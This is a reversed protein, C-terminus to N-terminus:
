KLSALNKKVQKAQSGNPSLELYKGYAAKAKEKKDSKWLDGLLVFADGYHDDLETAKQAQVRAKDVEGLDQHARGLWFHPEPAQPDETLAPTLTALADGASKKLLYVRALGVRAETKDDIGYPGKDWAALAAKFAAEGGSQDNAALALKGLGLNAHLADRDAISRLADGAKKVDGARRFADATALALKVDTLAPGKREKEFAKAAVAAEKPGKWSQAMLKFRATRLPPAAAETMAQEADDVLGMGLSAEAYALRDDMTPKGGDIVARLATRAERYRGLDVYIKGLASHVALLNPAERSVRQLEDIAEKIKGQDRYVRGLLARARFAESNRDLAKLLELQAKNLDHKEYAVLGLGYHPAPSTMTKAAKELDKIAGASDGLRSRAIARYTVATPDGPRRALAADLTALGEKPKGILVQARGLVAMRRPTQMGVSLALAVKEEYGKALAVEADLVGVDGDNPDLREAVRMAQEAESVQGLLLRARGYLLALRGDHVIGKRAAELELKAQQADEPKTKGLFSLGRALHFWAETTVGLQQPPIEVPPSEGRELAIIARGVVARPHDPIVALVRRLAADAADLDGAGLELSGLTLLARANVKDGGNAITAALIKRAADVAGKQLACRAAIDGDEDLTPTCTEGRGMALLARAQRLEREVRADALEPRRKIEKECRRLMAWASADTDEGQDFHLRAAALTLMSYYTPIKPRIRVARAFSDRAAADGASTADLIKVDGEDVLIKLLKRQADLHYMYGAVCGAVVLGLGVWLWIFANRRRASWARQMDNPAATQPAEIIQHQHAGGILQNAVQDLDIAGAPQYSAVSPQYVVQESHSAAEAHRAPEPHRVPEPRSARPQPMPASAAAKPRPAPRPAPPPQLLAPPPEREVTTEADFQPAARQPSPLRAPVTEPSEFVEIESSDGVALEGLVAAHPVPKPATAASMAAMLVAQAEELQGAASLARGLALNMNLDGPRVMLGRRCATVAESARGAAVLTDALKVIQNPDREAAQRLREIETSM